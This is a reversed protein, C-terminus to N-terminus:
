MYNAYMVLRNIPNADIRKNYNVRWRWYIWSLINIHIVPTFEFLWPSYFLVIMKAVGFTSFDPSLQRKFTDFGDSYTSYLWMISNGNWRMLKWNNKEVVNRRISSTILEAITMWVLLCKYVNKKWSDDYTWRTKNQVGEGGSFSAGFFFFKKQDDNLNNYLIGLVFRNHGLGNSFIAVTPFPLACFNNSRSVFNNNRYTQTYTQV